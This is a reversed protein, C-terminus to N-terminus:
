IHTTTSYFSSLTAIDVYRAQESGTEILSIAASDLGTAISVAEVTLAHSLRHAKLVHSIGILSPFASLEGIWDASQITKSDTRVSGSQSFIMPKPPSGPKGSWRWLICLALWYDNATKPAFERHGKWFHLVHRRGIEHLNYLRETEEVSEVFKIIRGVQLRRNSKSGCRVYDHALARVQKVLTSV